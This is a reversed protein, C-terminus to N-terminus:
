EIQQAVIEAFDVVKVDSKKSRATQSLTMYCSPCATMLTAAKIEEAQAIRKGAIGFSKDLDVAKYM